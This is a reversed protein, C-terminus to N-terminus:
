DTPTSSSSPPIPSKRTKLCVQLLLALPNGRLKKALKMEMALTNIYYVRYFPQKSNEAEFLM